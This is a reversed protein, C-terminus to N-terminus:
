VDDWTTAVSTEVLQTDNGVGNLTITGDPLIGTVRLGLESAAAMRSQIAKPSLARTKRGKKPPVAKVVEGRLVSGILGLREKNEGPDLKRFDAFSRFLDSIQRKTAEDDVPMTPPRRPLSKLWALRAALDAATVAPADDSPHPGDIAGGGREDIESM